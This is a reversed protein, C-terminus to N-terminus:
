ARTPIEEEGSKQTALWDDYSIVRKMVGGFNSSRGLLASNRYAEKSKSLGEPGMNLYEVPEKVPISEQKQESNGIESIDTEQAALSRGDSVNSNSQVEASFMAPNKVFSVSDKSILINKRSLSVRQQTIAQLVNGFKNVAVSNEERSQEVSMRSILLSKRMEENKLASNEEKLRL